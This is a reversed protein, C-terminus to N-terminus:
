KDTKKDKPKARKEMEKKKKGIPINFTIAM